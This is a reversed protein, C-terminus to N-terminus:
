ILDCLENLHFEVKTIKKEVQKKNTKKKERQQQLNNCHHCEIMNWRWVPMFDIGYIKGYFKLSYKLTKKKESEASIFLIVCECWALHNYITTKKVYVDFAHQTTHMHNIQFHIFNRHFADYWMKPINNFVTWIIKLETQNTRLEFSSKYGFLIWLRNWKKERRRSNTCTVFFSLRLPVIKLHFFSITDIM